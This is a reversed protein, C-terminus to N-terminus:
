GYLENRIMSIHSSVVPKLGEELTTKIRDCGHMVTTHDRGGLIDGIEELNLGLENRLLFMTVQRPIVVERKRRKGCLDKISTDFQRTVLELILDPTIKRKPGKQEEPDGLISRVLAVNLPGPQSSAYSQLQLLIGHIERINSTCNDAIFQMVPDSLNLNLELSKQQVIAVRTEFDPPSIMVMLGGQFRSILRDPIDQIQTPDRDSVLVIQSNAQQLENFTHYFEELSAEKGSLFQIDDILLVNSKRYRNRFDQMPKKRTIHGILDNVFTESPAYTITFNPHKTLLENGIAHLLHTKGVGTNGYILLPNYIKGPNEVISTAAAHVVRNNVGVIYNDLTYTSNLQPATHFSSTYTNSNQGTEATEPTAETLNESFTPPEDFLPGSLTKTPLRPPRLIYEVTVATGIVERLIRETPESYRKQIINKSYADTCAIIVKDESTEYLSTNRFWTSVAVPDLEIELAALVQNWIPTTSMHASLIRGSTSLTM